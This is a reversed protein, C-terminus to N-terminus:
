IHWGLVHGGLKFMPKLHRNAHNSLQFGDVIGVYHLRTLLGLEVLVTLLLISIDM